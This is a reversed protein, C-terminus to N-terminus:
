VRITDMTDGHFNMIFVQANSLLVHFWTGDQRRLTLWLLVTYEANEWDYEEQLSPITIPTSYEGHAQLTEQLEKYSEPFIKVAKYETAEVGWRERAVPDDEVNSLAKFYLM